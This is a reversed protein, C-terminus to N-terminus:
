VANQVYFILVAWTLNSQNVPRNILWIKNTIATVTNQSVHLVKNKSGNTNIDLTEPYRLSILHTDKSTVSFNNNEM